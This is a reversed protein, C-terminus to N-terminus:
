PRAEDRKRHGLRHRAVRISLGLMSVQKDIAGPTRGFMKAMAKASKGEAIARKFAAQERITWQKRAGPGGGRHAKRVVGQLTLGLRACKGIVAQRTVGMAECIMGSSWGRAVLERLREERELAWREATM